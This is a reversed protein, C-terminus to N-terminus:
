VADVGLLEVAQEVPDDYVAGLDEVVLQFLPLVVVVAM